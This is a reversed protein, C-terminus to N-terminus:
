HPGFVIILRSVSITDHQSLEIVAKGSNRGTQLSRFAEEIQGGNFIRLPQPPRMPNDADLYISMTQRVMKEMFEKAERAVISLDASLLSIGRLFPNLSIKSRLFMDKKGIEVFRGLPAVCQISEKLYDGSLSNLVVDVGRGGTMRKIGQAFSKHRSSLIQDEPIGYLEILLSKKEDSSVTAYINNTMTQALQIAAQGVGGAAAHILVSEGPALRALHFLSYYATTFAIPVAAATAFSMEDPLKYFWCKHGRAYNRFANKTTCFVRDGVRFEDVSVANGVATVVGSCEQGLSTDPIQGLAVMVNKFNVGVAKVALMVEESGIEPEDGDDIFQLASLLGPSATTLTISRQDQSGFSVDAPKQPVTRQFVADNIANLETVRNIQLVGNREQYEQEVEDGPSDWSAQVISLVNVALLDADTSNQLSLTIFDLNDNKSCMARGFGASLGMRPDEESNGSIWIFYRPQKVLNQIIRLQEATICWLLPRELELLSICHGGGIATDLIDNSLPHVDYGAHISTNSIAQIRQAVTVQLDSNPDIIIIGKNTRPDLPALEQKTSSIVSFTHREAELDRLCVDAGSFGSYRLEQDWRTDTLLPGWHRHKEESLWWGPLLGFVFTLRACNIQCPELLLLRGGPKLLTGTQLLTERINATAHLVCSAVVLDYKGHDFGQHQTSKGIDLTRFVLRDAHDGFRAKAKEFFSASIDTYTYEQFRSTGHPDNPKEPGLAGLIAATAGGTGAGIELVSMNPNKHAMLDVYAKMKEYNATFSQGSYFQELLGDHFLLELVDVKGQLIEFLKQGIAVFVKGEPGSAELDSLVSEAYSSEHLMRKMEKSELIVRSQEQELYYRIWEIYRSLHPQSTDFSSSSELTRRMYYLCALEATDVSAQTHLEVLEAADNCYRSIAENTATSIDIKWQSQFCLRRWSSVGPAVMDISSITTVRYGDVSVIIDGDEPDTATMDFDKDRLGGFVLRSSVRLRSSRNNGLLKGSLRLERLFTPVMTAVPKWGGKSIGTVPLHFIGDLATPHILHPQIKITKEPVKTIWDYLNIAAAAANSKADVQIDKLTQFTPGFDFGFTALNEYMQKPVVARNCNSVVDAHIQLRKRKEEMDEKGQDIESVEGETEIIVTGHCNEVWEEGSLSCLRFEYQEGFVDRGEKRPRLFFHTEINEVNGSMVIAKSFTVDKIKLETILEEKTKTVQRVAEFAMIMMGSAPYILSGNFGHDKMWPHESSSLINRWKAELPNWDMAPTGLLEHRPYTRFRFNRSLRSEYWYTHAHNFPYSPLDTLMEVKSHDIGNVALLDVPSGHSWLAGALSLMTSYALRSVQLTPFYPLDGLTDSVARRLAGTPGLEVIQSVPSSKREVRMAQLAGAFNVKEVMNRVWYEPRRLDELAVNQATVSSFMQPFTRPKPPTDFANLGQLLTMYEDSIRKMSPSHYAVNVNLRRAFIGDKELMSRLYEIAAVSGSVTVNKPSNICAVSLEGHKRALSVYVEAEGFPLAIAMMTELNEVTSMILRASLLGRFYAISIAARHSVAGACHAAAIEGSSHGIVVDPFINWAALLEMLAIQLATCIPQSLQAESVRSTSEDKQLEVVHVNTSLIRCTNYHDQRGMLSWKCGVEQLYRASYSLSQAFVPANFLERGMAYWAAGQGTFIFALKPKAASARVPKICGSWLDAPPLGDNELALYTRWPMVSRKAALTYAMDAIFQQDVRKTGNDLYPTLAAVLRQPGGEDAASWVLLRPRPAGSSKKTKSKQDLPLTHHHGDLNRSKLYGYADDLVIHANAGGYGFSNVSARRLDQTPWPM